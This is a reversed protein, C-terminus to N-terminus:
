KADRDDYAVGAAGHPHEWIRSDRRYKARQTADLGSWHRNIAAELDAEGSEIRRRNEAEWASQSERAKRIPCDERPTALIHEWIAKDISRTSM